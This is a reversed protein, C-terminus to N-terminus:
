GIVVAFLDPRQNACATVLLGGNSGGQIVLSKNDTYGQTELYEAAAMFDDFGNQKNEKVSAKHWAEGFEGGGRISALAFMGDM